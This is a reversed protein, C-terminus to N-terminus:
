KIQTGDRTIEIVYFPGVWLPFSRAFPVWGTLRQQEQSNLRSAPLFPQYPHVLVLQDSRRMADVFFANSLDGPLRTM